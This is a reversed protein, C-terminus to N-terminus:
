VEGMERWLNAVKVALINNKSFFSYDIELKVCADLIKSVQEKKIGYDYIGIDLRKIDFKKIYMVAFPLTVEGSIAADLITEYSFNETKKENWENRLNALDLVMKKMSDKMFEIERPGLEKFPTPIVGLKRAAMSVFYLPFMDPHINDLGKKMNYTLFRTKGADFNPVKVIPVHDEDLKVKGKSFYLSYGNWCRYLIRLKQDHEM